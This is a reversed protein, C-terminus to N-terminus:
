KQKFTYMWLMLFKIKVILIYIYIVQNNQQKFFFRIVDIWFSLTKLVTMWKSQLPSPFTKKLLGGLCKWFIWLDIQSAGEEEWAHIGPSGMSWGTDRGNCWLGSESGQERWCDQRSRAPTGMSSRGFGLDLFLFFPLTDSRTLVQSWIEFM